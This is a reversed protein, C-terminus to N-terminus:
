DDRLAARVPAFSRRHLVTPGFHRLAALHAKTGYGMHREFGYDPWHAGMAVMMQDRATKAMISAAAITVSRADGKIIAQGPCPLGRPVDRGDILAAHPRESLGNVARAMAWLTAQLINMKDIRAPAATAISVIGIRLIEGALHARRRPSLKKSDDLDPGRWRRPLIVAAAVVPGALPGRGAEDIGAILTGFNARARAELRMDPPARPGDFPLPAPHQRIM